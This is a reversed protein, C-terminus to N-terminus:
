RNEYLYIVRKTHDLILLRNRLIVTDGPHLPQDKFAQFTKVPQQNQFLTTSSENCVAVTDGFASLGCANGTILYGLFQQDQDYEKVGTVDSVYVISHGDVAIDEPSNLAAPTYGFMGTQWEINGLINIKLIRNAKTDAIYIDGLQICLGRPELIDIMQNNVTIMYPENFQRSIKYINGNLRDSCYIYEQDVAIGCPNWPENNIRTITQLVDGDYDCVYLTNTFDDTIFLYRDDAALRIPNIMGTRTLDIIRTETYSGTVSLPESLALLLQLCLGLFVLTRIM